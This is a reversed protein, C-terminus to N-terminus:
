HVSWPVRGIRDNKYHIGPETQQWGTSSDGARLLKGVNLFLVAVGAGLGALLAARLANNRRRPPTPLPPPLVPPIELAPPAAPTSQTAPAPPDQPVMPHM